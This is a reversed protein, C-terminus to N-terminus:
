ELDKIQRASEIKSLLDKAQEKTSAVVVFIWSNPSRKATHIFPRGRKALKSIQKVSKEGLLENWNKSLPLTNPKLIIIGSLHPSNKMIKYNDDANFDTSSWSSGARINREFTNYEAGFDEPYLVVMTRLSLAPARAKDGLASEVTKLYAPIFDPDFLSSKGELDHALKPMLKKAVADIAQDNYFSREKSFYKEFREPPLVLKSVLGNGLATALVENLLNYAPIATNENSQVFRKVLATHQNFPSNRYFYHFLEHLVVDVRDIPEEGELVEIVSHNEIQEGSSHPSKGPLVFFHFYIPSSPSVEAHYFRSVKEVFALLKKEHFLSIFKQAFAKTTKFGSKEWWKRHRDQFQEIIGIALDVDKPLMLLSLNQRYITLDEAHFAAIRFKKDFSISSNRLPFGVQEVSKEPAEPIQASANSYKGQLSAWAQIADEDSKTWNQENWFQRVIKQECHILDALCDLQYALSSLAKSGFVLQLQATKIEENVSSAKAQCIFSLLGGIIFVIFYSYKM